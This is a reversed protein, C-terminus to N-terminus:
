QEFYIQTGTKLQNGMIDMLEPHQIRGSEARAIAVEWQQRLEDDVSSSLLEFYETSERDNIVARRYKGIVSPM